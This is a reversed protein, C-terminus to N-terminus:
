TVFLYFLRLLQTILTWLFPNGNRTFASLHLKVATEKQQAASACLSVLSPLLVPKKKQINPLQDAPISSYWFFARSRQDVEAERILSAM